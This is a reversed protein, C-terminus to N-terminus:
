RGEDVSSTGGSPPRQGECLAPHGASSLRPGEGAARQEGSSAPQGDGPVRQEEGSVRQGGGLAGQGEGSVRQGDGPVRQEEGSVRQGGGPVRQEEGSVRQGGGLAGQGEGLVRQGDGLAGQGEGSACQGDAPPGQGAGPVGQVDGPAGQREGSMRQGEGPPGQEEGPVGQVDGFRRDGGSSPHHEPSRGVPGQEVLASRRGQGVSRPLEAEVLWGHGPCPGASLSGGLLSARERLGTLGYGDRGRGRSRRVAAGDDRVTVRVRDAAASDVRVEVRTADVAHRTANTLSEQVIRYVAADVAAPLRHASPSIWLDVALRQGAPGRTLRQLDAVGATPAMEARTDEDRLAAVMARMAELTRAGEEEVGELTERMETTGSTAAQVRGAQARVVIAAVHHAVTDHLERALATRERARMRELNRERSTAWMRVSIGAIAPLALFVLSGLVDSAPVENVALSLAFSALTVAGGLVIERGSGWRTLAYVFILVVMGSYLGLPRDHAAAADVLTLVIGTGFALAVMALPQTRRWLTAAYLVITVLLSVPWLVVDGRLATELGAAALGAALLVWDRWM